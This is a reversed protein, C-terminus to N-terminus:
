YDLSLIEQALTRKQQDNNMITNTVVVRMGLKEISSALDVDVSDIIFVDCLGVYRKAM